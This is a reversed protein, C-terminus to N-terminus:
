NRYRRENCWPELTELDLAGQKRRYMRLRKAAEYQLEIQRKMGNIQAILPPIPGTGELWDGVDEYVLKAKNRV